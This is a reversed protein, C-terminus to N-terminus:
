FNKTRREDPQRTLVNIPTVSRKRCKNEPRLIAVMGFLVTPQTQSVGIGNGRNFLPRNSWDNRFEVWASLRDGLDRTGTMTFEKVQQVSGTAMGSEDNLWELRPSLLLKRTLQFRARLCARAPGRNKSCVNM